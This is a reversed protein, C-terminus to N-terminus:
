RHTYFQASAPRIPPVTIFAVQVRWPAAGVPPHVRAIRAIIVKRQSPQISGGARSSTNLYLQMYPKTRMHSGQMNCHNRRTQLCRAARGAGHEHIHVNRTQKHRTCMPMQSLLAPVLESGRFRFLQHVLSLARALSSLSVTASLSIHSRGPAGRRPPRSM